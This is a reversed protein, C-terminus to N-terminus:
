PATSEREHRYSERMVRLRELERKGRKIALAIFVAGVALVAVFLGNWLIRLLPADRLAPILMGVRRGDAFAAVLIGVIICPGIAILSFRNHKLTTEIRDISQDLMDETGGTLSRLEVQRLRRLRVNSGLLVLIAAAGMVLTQTKPNSLVLLVVVTAVAIGAVVDVIQALRARRAVAGASRKLRELEAPDPQERWVDGLRELDIDTM